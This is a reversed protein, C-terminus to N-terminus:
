SAKNFLEHIRDKLSENEVLTHMSGELKHGFYKIGHFFSKREHSTLKLSAFNNVSYPMKMAFNEHGWLCKTKLPSNM